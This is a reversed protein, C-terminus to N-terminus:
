LKWLKIIGWFVPAAFMIGDIRDLLGGHGPILAGADKKGVARKLASEFLDGLAGSIALVIGLALAETESFLHLLSSLFMSVLVALFIGGWFGEWTKKPSLKPCLAHRGFLKGSFYAGTDGAFVVTLLYFLSAREGIKIFYLLPYFGLFIYFPAFWFPLYKKFFLAPDFDPISLIFFCFLFLFFSFFPPMSFVFCLSFVLVIVLAGALFFEKSFEFLGSIEKFSILVVLLLFSFLLYVNSKFILPILLPYLVFSSIIRKFNM